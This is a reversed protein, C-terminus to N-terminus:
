AVATTLQPWEIKELARLHTKPVDVVPVGYAALTLARLWLADAEDNNAGQYQLRRIAEALVEDKSANGRGTAFVKLTAPPVDVVRYGDEWLALRVVGGLEGTAYSHSQRKSGMAYGEVAIVDVGPPLDTVPDPEGIARRLVQDRLWCLREMGVLRPPQLRETTGDPLAVGTSTLSLDLGLVRM